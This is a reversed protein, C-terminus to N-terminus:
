ARGAEPKSTDGLRFFLDEIQSQGSPRLVKWNYQLARQQDRFGPYQLGKLPGAQIVPDGGRTPEDLLRQLLASNQERTEPFGGEALSKAWKLEALRASMEAPDRNYIANGIDENRWAHRRSLQNKRAYQEELPERSLQAEVPVDMDAASPDGLRKPRRWNFSAGAAEAGGRPHLLAHLFEHVYSDGAQTNTFINGPPAYWARSTGSPETLAIDPGAFHGVEREFNPGMGEPGVQPLLAGQGPENREIMRAKVGAMEDGLLADRFFNEPTTIKGYVEGMPGDQQVLSFDEPKVFKLADADFNPGKAAAIVNSRARPSSPVGGTGLFRGTPGAM